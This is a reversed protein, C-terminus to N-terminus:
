KLKFNITLSTDRIFVRMRLGVISCLSLSFSVWFIAGIFTVNTYRGDRVFDRLFVM